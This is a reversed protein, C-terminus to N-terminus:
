RKFFTSHELKFIWSIKISQEKKKLDFLRLGGCPKSARLTPMAIRAKKGNWIFLRLSEDVKDIIYTPINKLVNLKYVFLSEGLTNILLIKGSLTLNRKRWNDLVSNLKTLVPLMNIECSETNEVTIGLLTFPKNTWQYNKETYLKSNSGSLSGIRYILTKDYSVKLGTQAEIHTLTKTVNAVTLQDYSLFLATDDAFQSLLATINNGMDIGKINPDSKIRRALIEGCLLYCFPSINCGQNCGREKYFPQSLQGFNQTRIWLKTFFLKSWTIFEPPIKFYNMAGYIASHEIRDFCKDFDISLIIAPIKRNKAYKIVEFTRRINEAINRNKMFGTQEESIIFPLVKQLRTAMTKSLIKFDLLLITLPRWSNLLQLNKEKKPILSILGQRVSHNLAGKLYCYEYLELLIPGIHDFFTMYFEKNLGDLGPCKGNQMAALNSHLEEVTIKAKLDAIQSENLLTEGASPTMNFNVDPNRTYLTEYFKKQEDLIESQEKIITGDQRKLSKINKALYNRKELSFFYKSMREGKTAWNAKSRFIASNVRDQAMNELENEIRNIATEIAELNEPNDDESNVLDKELITLSLKKNM